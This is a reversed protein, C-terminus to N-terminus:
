TQMDKLLQVTQQEEKWIPLRGELHSTLSVNLCKNKRLKELLLM